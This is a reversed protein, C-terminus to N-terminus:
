QRRRPRGITRKIKKSAIVPMSKAKKPYKAPTPKLLSTATRKLLSRASKIRKAEIRISRRIPSQHVEITHYIAEANLPTIVHPEDNNASVQDEIRDHNSTLLTIVEPEDGTQNEVINATDIAEDIIELSEVVVESGDIQDGICQGISVQDMSKDSTESPDILEREIGENNQDNVASLPTSTISISFECGFISTAFIVSFYHM